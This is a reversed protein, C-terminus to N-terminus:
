HHYKENRIISCARYLQEALILRVMQHPFVLKSLSWRFDARDLLLNHHGYAGGIIFVARKAGRTAQNAIINALEPSTCQSGNKDLAIVFDESVLSYLIKESEAKQHDVKGAYNKAGPFIKWEVPYYKSIRKTFIQIGEEVYRENAKGVTWLSLKM